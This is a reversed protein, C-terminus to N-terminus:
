RNITRLTATTSIPAIAINTATLALPGLVAPGIRRVPIIIATAPNAPQRNTERRAAITRTGAPATSATIPVLRITM